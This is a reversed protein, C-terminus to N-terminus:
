WIGPVLRARNAAYQDYVDAGLGRRLADEEIRIRRLMVALIPVVAALISLWNGLALGFGADSLLGAAYSPHRVLRYPGAAVLSHGEQIRVERTFFPGLTQIAWQRVAIGAVMLAVGFAFSVWRPGPVAAWTAEYAALFALGFGGYIAVFFLPATGKDAASHREGSRRLRRIEAWSGGLELLGWGFFVVWFVAAATADRDFLPRV